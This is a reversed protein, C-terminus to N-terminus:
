KGDFYATNLTYGNLILKDLYAHAMENAIVAKMADFPMPQRDDVRLIHFGFETQVVKSLEGIPLSYAVAEFEAAASGKPVFGM